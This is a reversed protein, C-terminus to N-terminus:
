KHWLSSFLPNCTRCRLNCKNGLRLDLYTPNESVFDKNHRALELYHSYHNLWRKNERIRKSIKGNKEEDWCFRCDPLKENNLMKIRIKKMDYSNWIQQFSDKGLFLQRDSKDKIYKTSFCCLRVAGNPKSTLHVFPVICLNSPINM